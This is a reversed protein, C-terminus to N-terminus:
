YVQERRDCVEAAVASRKNKYAIRVRRRNSGALHRVFHLDSTRNAMAFVRYTHTNKRPLFFQSDATRAPFFPTPLQVSTDITSPPSIPVEWFIGSKFLIARDPATANNHNGCFPQSALSHSRCSNAHRLNPMAGVWGLRPVRFPHISPM